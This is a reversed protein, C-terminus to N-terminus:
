PPAIVLCWGVIGIMGIACGLGAKVSGRSLVTLGFGAYFLLAALGAMPVRATPRLCFPLANMRDVPTVFQRHCTDLKPTDIGQKSEDSGAKGNEPRPVRSLGGILSDFPVRGRRFGQPGRMRGGLWTQDRLQYGQRQGCNRSQRLDHNPVDTSTRSDIGLHSISSLSVWKDFPIQIRHWPLRNAPRDQHRRAVLDLDTRKPTQAVAPEGEFYAIRVGQTSGAPCQPHVFGNGAGAIDTSFDVLISLLCKTLGLM